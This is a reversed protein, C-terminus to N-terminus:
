PWFNRHAAFANVSAVTPKYAARAHYGVIGISGMLMLLLVQASDFQPLPQPSRRPQRASVPWSLRVHRACFAWTAGTLPMHPRCPWDPCRLRSLAVFPRRAAQGPRLFALDPLGLGLLVM